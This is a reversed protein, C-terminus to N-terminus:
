YHFRVESRWLCVQSGAGYAVLGDKERVDAVNSYRNCGASIYVSDVGEVASRGKGKKDSSSTMSSSSSTDDKGTTALSAGQSTVAHGMALCPFPPAREGTM